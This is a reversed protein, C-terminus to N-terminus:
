KAFRESLGLAGRIQSGTVRRKFPARPLSLSIMYSPAGPCAVPCPQFLSAAFVAFCPFGTTSQKKGKCAIGKQAPYLTQVSSGALLCCALKAMCSLATPITTDDM